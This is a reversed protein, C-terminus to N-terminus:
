FQLKEDKQANKMIILFDQITCKKVSEPFAELDLKEIKRIKRRVVFKVPRPIQDNFSSNIFDIIEKIENKEM